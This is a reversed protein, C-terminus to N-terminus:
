GKPKRAPLDGSVIAELILAVLTEECGRAVTALEALMAFLYAREAEKTASAPEPSHITM